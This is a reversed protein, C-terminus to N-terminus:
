IVPLCGLAGALSGWIYFNNGYNPPLTYVPLALLAVMIFIGLYEKREICEREETLRSQRFLCGPKLVCLFPIGLGLAVSMHAVIYYINYGIAGPCWDLDYDLDRECDSFNYCVDSGHHAHTLIHAM